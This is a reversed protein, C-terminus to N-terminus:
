QQATHYGYVLLFGTAARLASALPEGSAISVRGDTWVQKGRCDALQATSVTDARGPAHALFVLGESRDLDTCLPATPQPAYTAVLTIGPGNTVGTPHAIARIASASDVGASAVLRHHSYWCISLSTADQPLIGGGTSPAEPLGVPSRGAACGHRDIPVRHASNFVQMAWASQDAAVLIEIGVDHQTWFAALEITDTNQTPDEVICGAEGDLVPHSLCHETSRSPSAGDIVDRGSAIWVAPPALATCGITYTLGSAPRNVSNDACPPDLTLVAPVFIEVGLADVAQEGRPIPVDVTHRSGTSDVPLSSGGSRATTCGSVAILALLAAAVFWNVPAHARGGVVRDVVTMFTPRYSSTVPNRLLSKQM